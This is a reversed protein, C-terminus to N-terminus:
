CSVGRMFSTTNFNDIEEQLLKISSEYVAEEAQTTIADRDSDDLFTVSSKFVKCINALDVFHDQEINIEGKDSLERIKSDLEKASKFRLKITAKNEEYEWADDDTIFLIANEKETIPGLDFSTLERNLKIIPMGMVVTITLLENM